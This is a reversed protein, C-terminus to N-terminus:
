SIVKKRQLYQRQTVRNRLVADPVREARQAPPGRRARGGANPAAEGPAWDSGEDLSLDRVFSKRKAARRPLVRPACLSGESMQPMGSGQVHLGVDGFTDGSRFKCHGSISHM